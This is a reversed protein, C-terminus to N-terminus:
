KVASSQVPVTVVGPLCNFHAAVEGQSRLSLVRPLSVARLVECQEGLGRALLLRGASSGVRPHYAAVLRQISWDEEDNRGARWLVQASPAFPSTAAKLIRGEDKSWQGLAAPVVGALGVVVAITLIVSVSPALVLGVSRRGFRQELVLYGVACWAAVLAVGLAAVHWLLKTPYYSSLSVDLFLWAAIPEMLAVVVALGVWGSARSRRCTTLCLAGACIGAVVWEVPLRMTFGPLRIRGVTGASVGHVDALSLLAPAIALVSCALVTIAARDHRDIRVGRGQRALCVSGLCLIGAIPLCLPYNHATLVVAASCIVVARLHGARGFLLEFAAAALLFAQVVTGQFGAGMAFVFFQPWCMVVGAALGALSAAWTHGGYLRVLAMALLSTAFSAMVYMMWFMAANTSVLTLLGAPTGSDDGRSLVAVSVFSPWARPMGLLSYDSYNMAGVAAVTLSHAVNDAGAFFWNTARTVPMTAMWVGFGALFLAPLVAVVESREAAQLSALSRRRRWAVLGAVVCLGAVTLRSVVPAGFNQWDAIAALEVLFVVCAMVLVTAAPICSLVTRGITLACALALIAAALGVMGFGALAALVGFVAVIVGSTAASSRRSESRGVVAQPDVDAGNTSSASRATPFTLGEPNPLPGVRAPADAATQKGDIQPM